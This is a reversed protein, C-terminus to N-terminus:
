VEINEWEHKVREMLKKFRSESRINELFPDQENLLPYNVLGANVASELWNLAEKKEDLLAFVGALHHSFLCDRQCTKKFDSTMEQFAKDKEGQLGYMLMLGLKTLVSDPEIKASQDIISFAEDNKNNYTLILAHYWRSFPNEPYMEYLRRWAKLAKDYQGSYFHLAGQVVNPPFDFPDIQLVRECISEAASIKGFFMYIVALTALAFSDNPTIALAKKLHHASKLPEGISYMGGLFVHAKPFEPDIALAKNIHEEAKVFYEEQKAGINVLNIYAFALGSHLLANDGIINLANKLYRIARDIAEENFTLIEAYAKLYLEYAPVNEIPRESMRRNEEPSLKLQLAEVISRSVTEQIDFVDDLTGSYKEAWLHMDNAAEILQATIRLNNGAKRVSGELVYQVKVEQAITNIKKKTGKFTMASSRSIVKLTQVKSLDSIIEETMGDCFYEQEPDPSLNEFPLVMISKEAKPFSISLRLDQILEQIEQYRENTKKALAKEVTQEIHSPIDSRLSTIPRLNENLISYILAHEQDKEFPREGTLMEYMMAGLSWIDTRHDVEEGKAQEPSMYAVTGMITSPKTLDVGWSLKALGFDTIKAQGEDNIMINAPKIDRHVIGKKHAEKLGAAVQLAIDKAEDITLPGEKLKEKLNQGEIYSMAIFTQEDAEDVEYVTCINLHELAAAAQAEQIFRKKAEKDQTLGAPLFKLAVIRKLRIDKAKYVVGMGGEGLKGMIKYKKAIITDKRLERTPTQLTKTVSLEKAPKLATACEKCFKSDNPNDTDCQHCKITM